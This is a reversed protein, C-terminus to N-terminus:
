GQPGIIRHPGDGDVIACLYKLPGGAQFLTIRDNPWQHLEGLRHRLNHCSEAWAIEDGAILLFHGPKDPAAAIGDKDFM